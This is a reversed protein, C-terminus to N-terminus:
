GKYIIRKCADCHCIGDTNLLEANKQSLAMFCGGCMYSKDEGLVRAFPPMINQAVLVDYEKLINESVKARLGAAEKELKDLEKKAVESKEKYANKVVDYEERLKKGESQAKAFASLAKESEAKLKEAKKSAEVVTKKIEELKAIVVEKDSTTELEKMLEEYDKTANNLVAVTDNYVAIIKDAYAEAALMRKKADEFNTKITEVKKKEPINEIEKKVKKIQMDVKQYDFLNELSM